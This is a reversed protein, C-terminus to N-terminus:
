VLQEIVIRIRFIPRCNVISLKDARTDSSLHIFCPHLGFGFWLVARAQSAHDRAFRRDAPDIGIGPQHIAAVVNVFHRLLRTKLFDSIQQEIAFQGIALLKDLKRLLNGRLAHQGTRHNIHQAKQWARRM